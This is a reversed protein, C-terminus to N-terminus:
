LHEKFLKNTFEQKLYDHILFQRWFPYKFCYARINKFGAEHRKIFRHNGDVTIFSGDQAFAGIIPKDRYEPTMRDLRPQEIGRRTKIIDVHEPDIRISLTQITDVQGAYQEAFQNMATAAFIMKEGTTYDEFSFIEQRGKLQFAFQCTERMNPSAAIM